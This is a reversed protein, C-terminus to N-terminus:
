LPKVLMAIAVAQLYCGEPLFVRHAQRAPRYAPDPVLRSQAAFATANSLTYRRYGLTKFPNMPGIKDRPPDCRDDCDQILNAHRMTRLHLQAEGVVTWDRLM